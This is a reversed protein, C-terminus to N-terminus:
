GLFKIASSWIDEISEFAAKCDKLSQYGVFGFTVSNILFNKWESKIEKLNSIAMDLVILAPGVDKECNTAYLITEGLKTLITQSSFNRLNHEFYCDRFNENFAFNKITQFINGANVEGEYFQILNTTLKSVIQTDVFCKTLFNRDENAHTISHTNESCNVFAIILLSLFFYKKMKM